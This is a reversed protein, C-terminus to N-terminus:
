DKNKQDLKGEIRAVSLMTANIKTHLADFGSKFDDCLSDVKKAMHHHEQCFQPQSARSKGNGGDMLRKYWYTGAVGLALGSITGVASLFTPEPM